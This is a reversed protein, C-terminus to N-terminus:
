FFTLFFIYVFGICIFLQYSCWGDQNYGDTQYRSMTIERKINEMNLKTFREEEAASLLKGNKFHM